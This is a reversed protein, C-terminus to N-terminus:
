FLYKILECVFKVLAVWGGLQGIRKFYEKFRGRYYTHGTYTIFGTFVWIDSFSRAHGKPLECRLYGCEILEYVDSEKYDPFIDSKINLQKDGCSRLERLLKQNKFSLAPYKLRIGKM